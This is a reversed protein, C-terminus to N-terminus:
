TSVRVRGMGFAVRGGFGAHRACALLWAAPANCTVTIRGVWGPVAGVHGGLVVREPVTACEVEAVHLRGTSVGLRQAIDALAGLVTRTTPAYIPRTRGDVLHSVPTVADVTVVHKGRSPAAPARLRIVPGTQLDHEHSGVRVREVRAALREADERRFCVVGWGSGHAGSPMALAWRAVQTHDVGVLRSVLGHVLRAPATGPIGDLSVGWAVHEPQVGVTAGWPAGTPEVRREGTVPQGKATRRCVAGCYRGRGTRAGGCRACADPAVTPAAPALGVLERWGLVDGRGRLDALAPVTAPDRGAARLAMRALRYSRHREHTRKSRAADALATLAARCEPRACTRHLRDRPIFGTGCVACRALTEGGCPLPVPDDSWPSQTDRPPATDM